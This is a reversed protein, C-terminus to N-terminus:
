CVRVSVKHSVAQGTFLLTKFPSVFTSVYARLLTFVHSSMGQWATEEM